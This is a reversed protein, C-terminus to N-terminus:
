PERPWGGPSATVARKLGVEPLLCDRSTLGVEPLYNTNCLNILKNGITVECLYIKNLHPLWDIM